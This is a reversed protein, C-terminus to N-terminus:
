DAETEPCSDETSRLEGIRTDTDPDVKGQWRRNIDRRRRNISRRRRRRSNNGILGYNSCGNDNRRGKNDAPVTALVPIPM